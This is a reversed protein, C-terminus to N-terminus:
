LNNADFPVKCGGLRWLLKQHCLQGHARRQLHGFANSPGPFVRGRAVSPIPLAGPQTQPPAAGGGAAQADRREWADPLLASLEPERM